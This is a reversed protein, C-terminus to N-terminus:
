WTEDFQTQPLLRRAYVQILHSVAGKVLKSPSILTAQMRSYFWTVFRRTFRYWIYGLCHAISLVLLGNMYLLLRTMYCYSSIFRRWISRPIFLIIVVLQGSLAYTRKFCCIRCIPMNYGTELRSTFCHGKICGIAEQSLWVAVEHTELVWQIIPTSNWLCTFQM